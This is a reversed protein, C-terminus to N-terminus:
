GPWDSEEPQQVDLAHDFSTHGNSRRVEDEAFDRLRERDAERVGFHAAITHLAMNLEVCWKFVMRGLRHLSDKITGRIAAVIAANLYGTM